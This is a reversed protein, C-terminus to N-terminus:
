PPEELRAEIRRIRRDINRFSRRFIAMTVFLDLWLLAIGLSLCLNRVWTPDVWIAVIIFALGAGSVLSPLVILM